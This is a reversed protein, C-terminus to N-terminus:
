ANAIAEREETKRSTLGFFRPGSWHAGTIIRAVKTLSSYVTGAYDFGDETVSVTYTRGNWERVLRAGPRVTQRAEPTVHGTSELQVTLQKLTRKSAPSLGGYAKEQIRYAIARRMLDLSLRPPPSRYLQRWETRLADLSLNNVAALRESTSAAGTTPSTNSGPSMTM